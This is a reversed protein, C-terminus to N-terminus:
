KALRSRGDARQLLLEDMTLTPPTQPLRRQGSNRAVHPGALRHPQHCRSLVTGAAQNAAQRPSQRPHRETAWTPQRAITLLTPRRATLPVFATPVLTDQSVMRLRISSLSASRRGILVLHSAPPFRPQLQRTQYRLRPATKAQLKRDPHRKTCAPM